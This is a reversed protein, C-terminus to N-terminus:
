PVLSEVKAGGVEDVAEQPLSGESFGKGQPSAHLSHWVDYASKMGPNATKATTATMNLSECASNFAERWVFCLHDINEPLLRNYFIHKAQVNAARSTAALM